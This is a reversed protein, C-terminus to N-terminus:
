LFYCFICPGHILITDANRFIKYCLLQAFPVWKQMEIAVIFVKLTNIDVVIVIFLPLYQQTEM